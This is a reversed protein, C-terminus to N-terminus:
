AAVPALQEVADVWVAVDAELNLESFRALGRESARSREGDNSLREIQDLWGQADARDVFIGAGGLSERLGATPHAVVPIGCSMAEVGCMGWTERESPMLLIRTRAYIDGMLETPPLIEVNPARDVVQRGWGGKVGLFEVQPAGRALRWFLEGGKPESLNVLTVRDGPMAAVDPHLQPRVIVQYGEYAAEAASSRSNFVVLDAGSLRAVLDDHWGHVM